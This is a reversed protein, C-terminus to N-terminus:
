PVWVVSMVSKDTFIIGVAHQSNDAFLPIRNAYGLVNLEPWVRFKYQKSMTKARQSWVSLKKVVLTHWMLMNKHEKM